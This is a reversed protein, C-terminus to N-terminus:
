PSRLSGDLIGLLFTAFEPDKRAFAAPDRYFYELGMSLVETARKGYDKGVYWAAEGFVKEFDDKRGTEFSDFGSDPFIEKLPRAKEDGVRHQLFELVAKKVGNVKSEIVHGWEHIAIAPETSAPLKIQKFLPNYHARQMDLWGCERWAVTQQDAGGGKAVAGGLWEKAQRVAAAPGTSSFKESHKWEIAAGAPPAMLERAKAAGTDRPKGQNQQRELETIQAEREKITALFAKAGGKPNVAEHRIFQRLSEKEGSIRSRLDVPPPSSAALEQVRQWAPSLRIRTAISRDPEFVEGWKWSPKPPEAPPPPAPIHPNLQYEINGAADPIAPPLQPLILDPEPKPRSGPKAIKRKKPEPGLSGGDYDFREPESPGYEALLKEYEDTLVFTISCRCNPHLPPATCDSYDTGKGDDHFASDLDTGGPFKAAVEHCYPCADGSLLWKKGSVVGSDKASILSAAHVARAAETRAIMEARDRSLRGFVSQVRRTLEPITEGADVLGEIFEQRLEALAQNLEGDTTENTSQCFKFAQQKIVEHLHPDHVEWQDPDLGLRARTTKGGEDWYLSVLPTMASAMPDTWDTLPRFSTPLPAGIQPLRSLTQRLQRKAFRKFAKRIPRGEPLDYINDEHEEDADGAPTGPTRARLVQRAAAIATLAATLAPTM